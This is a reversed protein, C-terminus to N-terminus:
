KGTDFAQVHSKEMEVKHWVGAAGEFGARSKKNQYLLLVPFLIRTHTRYQVGSPRTSAKTTAKSYHQKDEPLNLM